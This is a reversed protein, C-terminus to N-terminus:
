RKAGPYGAARNTSSDEQQQKFWEGQNAPPAGTRVKVKSNPNAPGPDGAAKALRSAETENDPGCGSASLMVLAMLGAGMGLIVTKM